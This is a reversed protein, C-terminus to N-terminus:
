YYTTRLFSLHSNHPPRPVLHSLHSCPLTMTCNIYRTRAGVFDRYVWHKSLAPRRLQSRNSRYRGPLNSYIYSVTSRPRVLRLAPRQPPRWEGNGLGSSAAGGRAGAAVQGEHVQGRVRAVAEGRTHMEPQVCCM